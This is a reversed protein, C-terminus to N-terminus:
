VGQSLDSPHFVTGGGTGRQRSAGAAPPYGGGRIHRLLFHGPFRRPSHSSGVGRRLQVLVRGHPERGYPHLGSSRGAWGFEAAAFAPVHAM